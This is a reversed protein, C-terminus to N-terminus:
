EEDRLCDKVRQVHAAREEPTKIDYMILSAKCKTDIFDYRESIENFGEDSLDPTMFAKEISDNKVVCTCFDWQEGYRQEIIRLTDENIQSLVTFNVLILVISYIYKMYTKM